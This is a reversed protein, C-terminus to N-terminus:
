LFLAGLDVRLSVERPEEDKDKQGLLHQHSAFSEMQRGAKIKLPTKRTVLFTIVEYVLQISQLCVVCVGRVGPILTGSDFTWCSIHPVLLYSPLQIIVAKPAMPVCQTQGSVPFFSGM